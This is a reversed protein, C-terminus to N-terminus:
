APVWNTYPRLALWNSVIERRDGELGELYEEAVAKQEAQTLRLWEQFVETHSRRLLMDADSAGVRQALGFHEYQGSHANRLSSLYELRGLLTPIGRITKRWSDALLLEHGLM